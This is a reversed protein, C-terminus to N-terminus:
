GKDRQVEWLFFFNGHLPDSCSFNYFLKRRKQKEVVAYVERHNVAVKKSKKGGHREWLRAIGTDGESCLWRRKISGGVADHLKVIFGKKKDSFVLKPGM